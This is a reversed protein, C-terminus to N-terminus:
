RTPSNRAIHRLLDSVRPGCFHIIFAHLTVAIDDNLVTLKGTMVAANFVGGVLAM